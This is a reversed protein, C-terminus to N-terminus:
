PALRRGSPATLRTEYQALAQEARYLEIEKDVLRERAAADSLSAARAVVAGREEGPTAVIQFSQETTLSNM